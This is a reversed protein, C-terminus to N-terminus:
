DWHSYNILDIFVKFIQPGQKSNLEDFEEIMNKVDEDTSLNVLGHGPLYYRLTDIDEKFLSAMKKRFGNYSVDNSFHVLYSNGVAYQLSGDKSSFVPKCDSFCLVKIKMKSSDSARSSYMGQSIGRTGRSEM